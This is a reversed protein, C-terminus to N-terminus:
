TDSDGDTDRATYGVYKKDLNEIGYTQDLYKKKLQEADKVEGLIDDRRTSNFIAVESTDRLGFYNKGMFIGSVPNIKGQLMMQEWNAELIAKTSEVLDKYDRKIGAGWNWWTQRSVGLAACLGSVGPRMGYQICAAFYENIRAEVAERDDLPVKPRERWQTNFATITSVDAPEVHYGMDTRCKRPTKDKAGKPRGTRHSENKQEEDSM